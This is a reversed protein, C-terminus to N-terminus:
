KSEENFINFSIDQWMTKNIDLEQNLRNYFHRFILKSTGFKRAYYKPDTSLYAQVEDPIVSYDYGTTIIDDVIRNYFKEYKRKFQNIISMMDKRYQSDLDFLAHSLEHNITIENSKLAGILYFDNSSNNICTHYIRKLLADYENFDRISNSYLKHLVRSPLNFGAWDEAYTFEGETENDKSYWKKFDKLLFQKDRFDPNPSEYTEQARLFTWALEVNSTSSLLFIDRNIHKQLFIM